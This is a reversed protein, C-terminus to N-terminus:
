LHPPATPFAHSSHALRSLPWSCPPLPSVHINSPPLIDRSTPMQKDNWVADFAHLQSVHPQKLRLHSCPLRHQQSGSHMGSDCRGVSTVVPKHSTQRMSRVQLFGVAKVNYQGGKAGGQGRANKGAEDCM